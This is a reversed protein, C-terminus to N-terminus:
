NQQPRPVGLRLRSRLAADTLTGFTGATQEPVTTM